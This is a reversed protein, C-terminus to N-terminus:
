EVVEEIKEIFANFEEPTLWRDMGILEYRHPEEPTDDERIAYLNFIKAYVPYNNNQEAM